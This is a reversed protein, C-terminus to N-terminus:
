KPIGTNIGINYLTMLGATALGDRLNVENFRVADKHLKVEAALKANSLDQHCALSSQHEHTEHICKEGGCQYEGHRWILGFIPMQMNRLTSSKPEWCRDQPSQPVPMQRNCKGQICRPVGWQSSLWCHPMKPICVTSSQLEGFHVQSSEFGHMKRKCTWRFCWSGGRQWLCQTRRRRPTSLNSVHPTKCHSQLTQIQSM